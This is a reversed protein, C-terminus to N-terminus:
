LIVRKDRSAIAPLTPTCRLNVPSSRPRDHDSAALYDTSIKFWSPSKNRAATGVTM